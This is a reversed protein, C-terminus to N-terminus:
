KDTLMFIREEMVGCFIRKYGTNSFSVNRKTRSIGSLLGYIMSTIHGQDYWKQDHSSMMTIHIVAPGTYHSSMVNEPLLSAPWSIELTYKESFNM